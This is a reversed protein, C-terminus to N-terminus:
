LGADGVADAGPLGAPLAAGARAAQRARPPSRVPGGFPLPRGDRAPGHPREVPRQAEPGSRADAGAPGAFTMESDSSGARGAPSAQPMGRGRFIPTRVKWRQM